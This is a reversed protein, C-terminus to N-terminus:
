FAELFGYLGQRCARCPTQSVSIDWIPNELPLASVPGVSHQCHCCESFVRSDQCISESLTTCFEQFRKLFDVSAAIGNKLCYM